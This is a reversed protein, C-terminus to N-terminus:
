KKWYLKRKGQQQQDFTVGKGATDGAGPAGRLECAM